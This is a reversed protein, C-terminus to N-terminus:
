EEEQLLSEYVSLSCTINAELELLIKQLDESFHIGIANEQESLKSKSALLIKFIVNLMSSVATTLCFCCGNYTHKGKFSTDSYPYHVMKSDYNIGVRTTLILSKLVLQLFDVKKCIVTISQYHSEHYGLAAPEPINNYRAATLVKKTLESLSKLIKAKTSTLELIIKKEVM